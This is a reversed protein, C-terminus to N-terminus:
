ELLIKENLFSHNRTSSFNTSQVISASNIHSQREDQIPTLYNLNQIAQSKINVTHAKGSFHYKGVHKGWYRQLYEVCFVSIKIFLQLATARCHFM